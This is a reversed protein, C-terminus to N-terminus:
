QQVALLAGFLVFCGDLVNVVHAYLLCSTFLLQLTLVSLVSCLDIACSMLAGSARDCYDHMAVLCAYMFVFVYFRISYPLLLLVNFLSHFLSDAENIAM